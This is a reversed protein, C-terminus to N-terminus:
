DRRVTSGKQSVEAENGNPDLVIFSDPSTSPSITHGEQVLADRIVAANEVIFGLRVRPPAGADPKLPYLECVIGPALPFSYHLPGQGHREQTLVIGLLRYFAASKEIDAVRLVVYSGQPSSKLQELVPPHNFMEKTGLSNRQWSLGM